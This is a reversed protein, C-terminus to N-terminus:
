RTERIIRLGSPFGDQFPVYPLFLIKPHRKISILVHKYKHYHKFKSELIDREKNAKSELIDREENAEEILRTVVNCCEHCTDTM